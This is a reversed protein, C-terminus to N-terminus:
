KRSQNNKKNHQQKKTGSQPTTEIAKKVAKIRSEWQEGVEKLEELFVEASKEPLSKFSVMSDAKKVFNEFIYNRMYDEAQNPLAALTADLKAIAGMYLSRVTEGATPTITPSNKLSETMSLLALSDEALIPMNTKLASLADSDVMLRYYGIKEEKGGFGHWGGTKKTETRTPSVPVGYCEKTLSLNTALIVARVLQNHKVSLKEGKAVFKTMNDSLSKRLESRSDKTFNKIRQTVAELSGENEPGDMDEWNKGFRAAPQVSKDEAEEAAFVTNSMQNAIGASGLSGFALVTSLLNKVGFKKKM